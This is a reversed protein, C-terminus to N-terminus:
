QQSKFEKKVCLHRSSKVVSNLRLKLIGEWLEQVGYKNQELRYTVIGLKSRSSLVGLKM